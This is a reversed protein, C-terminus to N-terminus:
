WTFVVIQDGQELTQQAQLAFQGAVRVCGNTKIGDLGLMNRNLITGDPFIPEAHIGAGNPTAADAKFTTFNNLVLTDGVNGTQALESMDSYTGPPVVEANDLTQTEAVACGDAYLWAHNSRQDIAVGRKFGVTPAPQSLVAPLTQGVGAIGDANLGRDAQFAKVNAQTQPGFYGTVDQEYGHNRLGRQVREVMPGNTGYGVEEASGLHMVPAPCASEGGASGALVVTSAVITGVAVAAGGIRRRTSLRRNLSGTFSEQHEGM